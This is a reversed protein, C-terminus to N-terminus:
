KDACRERVFDGIAKAYAEPQDCWARTHGAEPFTLCPHGGCSAAMDRVAEVPTVTDAEGCLMLVPCSLERLRKPVNVQWLRPWRLCLVVWALDGCPWAPLGQERMTGAIAQTPHRYPSDAIVGAVDVRTAAEIAMAAGMSWGLLVVPRGDRQVHRIIDTILGVESVGWTCMARPSDGQGPMDFLVVQSAVPRLLDLWQLAAIRSDGWGHILILVPAEADHGTIRWLETAPGSAHPVTDTTHEVRADAPDTAWGRAMAVGETFRRPHLMRYATAMTVIVVLLLAAFSFLIGLGTWV